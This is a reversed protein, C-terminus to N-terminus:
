AARKPDPDLNREASQSVRIERERIRQEMWKAVASLWARSGDLCELCFCGGTLASRIHCKSCSKLPMSIMGRLNVTSSRPEERMRRM